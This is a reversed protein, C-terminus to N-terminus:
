AGIAASYWGERSETAWKALLLKVMVVSGQAAAISLATCGNEDRADISIGPASLLLDILRTDHSNSDVTYIPPIGPAPVIRSIYKIDRGLALRHLPTLSRSSHDRANPDVGPHSLLLKDRRFVAFHLPTFGNIGQANINVGRRSLLIRVVEIQGTRIAFHLPSDIYAADAEDLANGLQLFPLTNLRSSVREDPPSAELSITPRALGVMPEETEWRPEMGTNPDYGSDLLSEVVRPLRFHIALQLSSTRTATAHAVPLERRRAFSGMAIAFAFDRQRQRAFWEELCYVQYASRLKNTDKFLSMLEPCGPEAKTAHAAFYQAAYRYLANDAVRRTIEQHSRCPGSAFTNFLLYSICIRTINIEADPLWQARAQEFYEQTTYHVLRIVDSEEDLIVLGGCVELIDEVEPINDEDLESHGTEVALAHQLEASKLPRAACVIWSLAQVALDKFGPLQGTIREM